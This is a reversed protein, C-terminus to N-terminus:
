DVRRYIDYSGVTHIIEYSELREAPYIATYKAFPGIVIYDADVYDRFDYLERAPQGGRWVEDVAYALVIQPPYHYTHDTLVGLEQEWTEIVADPSINADLYAAATYAYAPDARGVALVQTIAPLALLTIMAGSALLTGATLATPHEGRLVARLDPWNLRLGGTLDSLARAVFFAGLAVAPFAYRAWALSSIFLGLAVLVFLSLIGWDQGDDTRRLSLYLGYVLAPIFLGGYVTGDVLYRLARQMEEFGFLFFAGSSAAGLTSLNESLSDSEGLAFLVVFTWAFFLVGAIIGPIVFYRWGRQRYYILDAIWSLLLAPLIFLAYQNKTICALGILIGVAALRGISKQGPGLWLVLGALLFFLGPIEGLVTRANYVFDVGPSLLLIMLAVVGARANILKRGLLYVLVLALMGYVVILLRALPISVGFLQFLLATPLMVTPGVGVAPGYYRLGESSYDAYIGNIAFNKAVHLHSGEDYWPAPYDALRYLLLFATLGAVLVLVAYTLWGRETAQKETM